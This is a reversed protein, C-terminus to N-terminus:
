VPQSAFRGHNMAPNPVDLELFVMYMWLCSRHAEAHIFGELKTASRWEM